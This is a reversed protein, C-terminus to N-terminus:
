LANASASQSAAITATAALTEVKEGDRAPRLLEGFFMKGAGTQIANGISVEVKKGLLPRANNVVVMSGDPLYGVAQHSDRGPKVLAVELTEGTVVASRLAQALENFNLVVVGELRALHALGADNTLLRAQIVQAVLILRQDVSTGEDEGLAPEHISVALDRRQRAVQLLELGRRGKERKLVDASDSLAQLENLVFRPVVLSTGVFGTDCVDLLRGDILISTDIVVPIDYVADRRFRIYPIILAFEDRTSRVALMIGLYGFISYLLLSAVWRTEESAHRLVESAFVLRTLVLGLLLGLTAVSFIRLSFGKLLRDILVVLLGIVLGSVAGAWLSDFIVAGVRMGMVFSFSLFLWRFLNITRHPIM